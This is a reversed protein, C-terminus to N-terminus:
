YKNSLLKEEMSFNQDHQQRLKWQCEMMNVVPHETEDCLKRSNKHQNIRDEDDNALHEM